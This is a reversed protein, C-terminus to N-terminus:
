FNVCATNSNVILVYCSLSPTSVNSVAPTPLASPATRTDAITGTASISIYSVDPSTATCNSCIRFVPDVANNLADRTIAQGRQNFRITIPYNLTDTVFIQTDSRQSFDVLRTEAANLQGNEDFDIAASFSTPGNLTITAMEAPTAARRRVSDFRGRELYNKFERTIRQRQFDIRAGRLQIVALLAMIGIIVLVILLELLSFGVQRSRDTKKM